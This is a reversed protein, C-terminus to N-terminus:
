LSHMSTGKQKHQEKIESYVLLKIIESIVVVLSSVLVIAIWTGASLPETHFVEQGVPTYIALLLLFFSFLVTVFIMRNAFFNKNFITTHMSRANFAHFLEFMIVAAFAVTRAYEVSSSHYFLEWLFLSFSGLFLLPALVFIKLLIYSSLLPEKPDRPKQHMVKPHTPEVSLAMSPFTSTVVNIFLVMLATLPTLVGAIASVVMLSVETINGTLLYFIFRRINSYITRGEKVAKVITAFNDDLLVMNAAQRAVDTGGKGMAIGIDAKKLAPADNVGDGTMAVIQGKHQLCRVIRLKHDPTTRAFIAVQDIIQELDYDNMVDLEHGEIIKDHGPYLLGLQQGISQATIKHDGTVMIVRIGADKCEKIATAADSRLPDDLAVLGEFVYGKKLEADAISQQDQTFSLRKELKKTAIGLVRYANKSYAHVHELIAKHAAEDLPILTNDKRYYSCKELVREIAGKLCAIQVHSEQKSQHVTVMYKKLPDFPIEYVRPYHEKILEEDFGASKAMALLAGETSEGVLVWEGDNFELRANNCLVCVSFFPFYSKLGKVSVATNTSSDFFTARPEYGIGHVALEKGDAFYLREAVMKNQTLTGTKDTCIVTTTGLTEVSSLDKVLANEKAMKKVGHSLAVTLALPFSEPIGSVAVAGVLLLVESLPMNKGMLLIFFVTCVLIVFFSIMKSMGDIQRQLPSKVDGISKLQASIKGLESTLGVAVVIGKGHGQTISTGSYLMNDRDALPLDEKPIADPQKPKQLPEGTLISEDVLLGHSEIVRLDAPVIMGRSLLVIDGITLEQALVVQEKGDRIVHVQKATFKR